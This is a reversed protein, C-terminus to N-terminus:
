EANMTDIRQILTQLAQEVQDAKGTVNILATAADELEAAAVSITAFGFIGGAGALGHAIEKVRALPSLSQGEYSFPLKARLLELDASDHRARDMFYRRLSAFDKKTSQLYGRTTPALSLPDFPKVIVGAAGLSRLTEIENKQARATMFVVPINATHPNEQLRALTTPGDMAPMMVDLLILDPQWGPAISLAAEGSECSKISIEPDITLSLEVVARIDPEDDVHLIRASSM